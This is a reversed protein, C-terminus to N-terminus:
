KVMYRIRFIPFMIWKVLILFFQVIYHHPLVGFVNWHNPYRHQLIPWVFSNRASALLSSAIWYSTQHRVTADPVAQFHFGGAAARIAMETDENNYVDFRQDFGGVVDFVKKRYAINGGGPWRGFNQVVREPFHGGYIGHVYRTAGFVVDVSPDDFGRLLESLWARDAICDDDIFVVIDSRATAIGINRAASKGLNKDHHVVRLHHEKGLVILLERTRDTSGDDVVVIESPQDHLQFLSALCTALQEHRNYSPVIVSCLHSM